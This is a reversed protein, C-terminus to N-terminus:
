VKCVYSPDGCVHSAPQRRLPPPASPGSPHALPPTPAVCRRSAWVHPCVRGARACSDHLTSRGHQPDRPCPRLPGVQRLAIRRVLGAMPAILAPHALPHELGDEFSQSGIELLASSEVERLTEDVACADHRFSPRSHPFSGSLAIPVLSM